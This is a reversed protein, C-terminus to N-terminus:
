LSKKEEDTSPPPDGDDPLSSIQSRDFRVTEISPQPQESARVPEVSAQPPDFTEKVVEMSAEPSEPADPKVYPEDTDSM